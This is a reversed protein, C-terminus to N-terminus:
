DRIVCYELAPKNMTRAGPDQVDFLPESSSNFSSRFFTVRQHSGEPMRSSSNFESVQALELINHKTL